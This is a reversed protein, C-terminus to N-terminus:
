PLIFRYNAIRLMLFTFCPSAFFGVITLPAYLALALSTELIGDVGGSLLFVLTWGFISLM